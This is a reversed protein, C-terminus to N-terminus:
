RSEEEQLAERIRLASRLVDELKNIILSNHADSLAQAPNDHVEVFIGDAGSAVGTRVM